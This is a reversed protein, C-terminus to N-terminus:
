EGLAFIIVQQNDFARSAIRDFKPVDLETYKERENPSIVVYDASYRELLSLTELDDASNYIRELDRDRDIWWEDGGRWQSQHQAWGLITPRGTWGSFRGFKSYSTGSAEVIVDENSVNERVWDMAEPIEPGSTELFRLGDLTFETGSESSKAATAAFPYYLSLAMLLVAVFVGASSLYAARRPLSPHHRMWYYVGYGGAIAFFIWVQYYFKFVTNHRGSFFDHLRFLEAVYLLLCAISMLVLTIQAGDDAGRLGRRYTTVSFVVFGIALILSLPLRTIIDAGAANDNFSYHSVAWALYLFVVLLISVVWPLREASIPPMVKGVSLRRLAAVEGKMAPVIIMVAFAVMVSILGGWVTLFHIPRTAYKTPVMPPFQIQSQATVFYYNAFLAAGICTLVLFAPAAVTIASAHNKGNERYSKFYVVGGLALLMWLMDWTNIFGASGVAVAMVLATIPNRKFWGLGWRIRSFLLNAILAVLTLVFPISMLHPHVDGLILSFFPFEQITFDLESGDASFRNIVRSSAWWWWFGTPRWGSGGDNLDVGKIALWEYFGDTGIGAFSILEWAGNLNSIILLFGIAAASSVLMQMTTGGDRRILNAVLSFIASASLAAITALALNYGVSAAVGSMQSIGGFMWYGFYYYAIPFGSLWLDTPPAHQASIVANLMTLDMPKETHSIDPDMAKVVAFVAFFVLFLVEVVVIHLWRRRVFGVFGERERWILWSWGAVAVVVAILWWSWEANPLVKLLSLMWVTAGLLLLGIPRILGFGRDMLNPVALYTVPLAALGIAYVTLLWLILDSM